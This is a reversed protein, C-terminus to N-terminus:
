SEGRAIVRQAARLLANAVEIAEVPTMRVSTVGSDFLNDYTDLHIQGEDRNDEIDWIMAAQTLKKNPRHHTHISAVQYM